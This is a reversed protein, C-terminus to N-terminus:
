NHVMDPLRPLLARGRIWADHEYEKVESGEAEKGKEDNETRM